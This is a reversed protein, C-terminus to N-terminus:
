KGTNSPTEVPIVDLARLALICASGWAELHKCQHLAMKEDGVRVAACLPHEAKGIAGNAERIYNLRFLCDPPMDALAWKFM